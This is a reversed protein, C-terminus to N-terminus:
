LSTQQWIFLIYKKNTKDKLNSGLTELDRKKHNAAKSWLTIITFALKSVFTILTAPAVNLKNKYFISFQSKYTKSLYPNNKLAKEFDNRICM